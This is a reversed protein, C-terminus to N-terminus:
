PGDASAPLVLSLWAITRPEVDGRPVGARILDFVQDDPCEKLMNATALYTVLTASDRFLRLDDEQLAPAPTAPALAGAAIWARLPDGCCSTNFFHSHPYIQDRGSPEVLTLDYAAQAAVDTLPTDVTGVYCWAHLNLNAWTDGTAQNWGLYSIFSEGHWCFHGNYAGGRKYGIREHYAIIGAVQEACEAHSDRPEVVAYHFVSGLM